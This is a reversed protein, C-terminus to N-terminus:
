FKSFFRSNKKNKKDPITELIKSFGEYLCVESKLAVMVALTFFVVAHPKLFGTFTEIFEFYLVTSLFICFYRKMGSFALTFIQSCFM